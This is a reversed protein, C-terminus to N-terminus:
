FKIIGRLKNKKNILFSSCLIIYYSVLSYVQICKLSNINLCKNYIYTYKQLTYM